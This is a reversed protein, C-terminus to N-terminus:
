INRITGPVCTIADEREPELMSTFLAEYHPHLSDGLFLIELGSFEKFFLRELEKDWCFLNPSSTYAGVIFGNKL